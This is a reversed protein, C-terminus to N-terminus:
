GKLRMAAAAALGMLMLLMAWEGLTPIGAAGAAAGVVFTSATGAAPTPDTEASDASATNSIQGNVAPATVVLTITAEADADITGLQCQVTTTGSCTGQSPTASVFTTGAPITDTVLVFTAQDPGANSVTILYEIPQGVDVSAPGTKTVSLDVVASDDDLIDGRGQADDITAGSVNTLNVFFTEDAEFATDDVVTVTVTKVCCDGPGFTLTGSTAAYDAPATATGDATAYDVTVPGDPSSLLLVEFTFTGDEFEEVNGIRIEPEDDVITGIGQGDAITAGEPNTLNFFFTEDGEVEADDFAQVFVEQSTQGPLFTLTGARPNYDGPSVATGDATAYDVTVEVESIASLTVTMTVLAGEGGSDDSVLIAPPADDNEITGVGTDDFISTGGSANSLRVSFTEDTEFITDAAVQVTVTQTTEGPDFTLTGSTVAYDETATASDEFTMYDVTVTEEQAPSLTVTFVFDTTGGTGEALSVDDIVLEPPVEDDNGITGLGEGDAVAAGSPNTLIVNFTEDGEFLTEGVVPVTITQSTEGPDFTLTGTTHAYDDPHDATGSTTTYVVTVTTSSPNSLTVEFVFDTTGADGEEMSVDTIELTPIGEDNQITGIGQSDDFTAGTADSLNVFFTEDPELTVDGVVPVIITQLTEGPDFTLTGTTTAYDGPAVASDDATTFDVTVPVGSPSSLTVDFVFDTTGADGEALSVDDISIRPADDDNRITGTAEGDGITANATVGTLNVILTEDAEFLTDGNVPVTITATLNKFIDDSAPITVEGSSAPYDGPATATDDATSWTVTVPQESGHSLTVQFELVNQGPTNGEFVSANSVSVTPAEDDNLITGVATDDEIIARESTTIRVTFTEDPELFLDGFIGIGFTEETDGPEFRITTSEFSFDEDAEATGGFTQLGIDIVQSSPHSLTLVFTFGQHSDGEEETVDSITVTPVEDENMITGIGQGDAIGANGPDSLNVFFTEDAGFPPVGEFINDGVVAVTVTQVVEGPDFTLTGSTSAYDSPATATDDATAYDVTITSESPNSLTVNFVFDTTGADGEEMSVDGISIEPQADDNTITGTAQGDGAITANTADSLNVVFTEDDELMTEGVVAVTITQLVEGPDFTVTESTTAYDAPTAAGGPATAYDVTITQASPNTLTVNFVFDTTGANGENRTVGAIQIAPQTDDNGILGEAQANALTAGSPDSLDVFFSEDPEFKLDGNVDITITATTEGPDFTVTGSESVYDADAVTATGNSTSYQATVSYSVAHSLTLGFNLPTTGADPELTSDGTITISPDPDFDYTTDDVPELAVRLEDVYGIFDDWAGSGFGAVVRFSGGSAGTVLRADPQALLIDSLPKVGSGATAGGTGNLSWWCGEAANWTQWTGTAVDPQTLAGCFDATQYVPEFFLLDDQDGDNDHDVRLILYPAQGGSGGSEQYSAYSLVPLDRLYLGDWRDSRAEAADAGDTGVALRLSGPPLPPTGPGSVITSSPSGGPTGEDSTTLTWEELMSPTVTVFTTADPEFDYTVDTAGHAFRLEDAAGSYNDWAGSGFGTVIRVGGTGATIITANPAVALIDAFSKVNAGPGSGALGGQTYWGGNRADWEQWVDMAPPGQPNSPFFAASQYLPEFWWLQTDATALNGDTDVHFLLYAAQDGATATADVQTFTSYSLATIDAIRVGAFANTRAQSADNGNEGVNLHLSGDGLPPTEYGPALYTSPPPEDGTGDSAVLTWGQLDSGTVTLTQAFVAPVALVLYLVVALRRVHGM